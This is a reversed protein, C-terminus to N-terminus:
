QNITMQTKTATYLLILKREMCLGGYSWTARQLLPTWMTVWHDLTVPGTMQLEVMQFVLGKQHACWSHHSQITERLRKLAKAWRHCMSSRSKVPQDSSMLPLTLPTADTNRGQALFSLVSRLATCWRPSLDSSPPKLSVHVKNFYFLQSHGWSPLLKETKLVLSPFSSEGLIDWICYSIFFPLLPFINFNLQAGKYILNWLFYWSVFIYKNWERTYTAVPLRWIVWTLLKFVWSGMSERGAQWCDQPPRCNYPSTHTGLKGALCTM